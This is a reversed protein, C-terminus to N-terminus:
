GRSKSILKSQVILHFVICSGASAIDLFILTRVHLGVFDAGNNEPFVPYCVVLM